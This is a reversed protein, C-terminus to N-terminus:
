ELPEAGGANGNSTKHHVLLTLAVYGQRLCMGYFSLPWIGDSVRETIQQSQRVLGNTHRVRVCLLPQDLRRDRHLNWAVRISPDDAETAAPVGRSPAM